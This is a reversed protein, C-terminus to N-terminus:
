VGKQTPDFGRAKVWRWLEVQCDPCLDLTIKKGIFKNNMQMERLEMSNFAPVNPNETCSGCIKGCRDCQRVRM